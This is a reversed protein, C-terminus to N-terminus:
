KPGMGPIRVLALVSAPVQSQLEKLQPLEGTRCLVVIKDALDKGISDIETLSRDPNAAIEALSEHYQQITRAANRYARVRFQNAGQFELLDAMEDFVAALQANNM